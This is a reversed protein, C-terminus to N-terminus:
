GEIEELKPLIWRVEEGDETDMETTLEIDATVDSPQIGDDTMLPAATEKLKMSGDQLVAGANHAKDMIEGQHYWIKRVRFAVILPSSGKWSVGETTTSQAGVQGEVAAPTGPANLGGELKVGKDKRNTSQLSGGRSIKLGTVMYVPQKQKKLLVFKEVQPLKMSDDKEKKSHLEAGAWVGVLGFIRAMFGLDGSVLKSRTSKFDSNIHPPNEKDIPITDDRNLPVFETLDDLIHGLHLPGEPPPATTWNPALIYTKLM